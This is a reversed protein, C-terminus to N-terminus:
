ARGGTGTGTVGRGSSGSSSGRSASCVGSSRARMSASRPRFPCAHGPREGPVAGPGTGVCLPDAELVWSAAATGPATRATGPSATGRSGTGPAATGPAATGPAQTGGRGSGSPPVVVGAPSGTAVLDNIPSRGSVIPPKSCRSRRRQVPEVERAIGLPGLRSPGRGGPGAEAGSGGGPGRRRPGSGASPKWRQAELAPNCRACVLSWRRSGAGAVEGRTHMSHLSEVSARAWRDPRASM